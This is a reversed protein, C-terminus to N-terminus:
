HAVEITGDSQAIGSIVQGSPLRVQVVQGAVGNSLARGESSVRFGAGGSIIKVGQGQKVVLPQRLMEARLPRDAPLSVGSTQGVVHTSDTLIGTPLDALDGRRKALDDEAITQGVRLPRSTVLYEVAVHITVPVYMSWTAGDTCRVNVHTRGWPRAGADMRVEMSRCGNAFGGTKIPGINYTMPGPLSKGRASLFDAIARHISESDAAQAPAPILLLSSIFTFALLSTPLHM